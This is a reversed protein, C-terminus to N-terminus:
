YSVDRCFIGRWISWLRVSEGDLRDDCSPYLHFLPGGSLASLGAHITQPSRFRRLATATAASSNTLVTPGAVFSGSGMQTWNHGNGSIDNLNATLPCDMYLNTAHVASASVMETQIQSATLAATWERCYAVSIDSDSGATDNGIFEFGTVVAARNYTSTGKLAGNVYFNQSTGTQTWALHYWTGALPATTTIPTMNGDLRLDVTEGYFAVYDTYTGPADIIIYPTQYLPSVAVTPFKAWLCVTSDGAHPLLATTRQLYDSATALHVAM